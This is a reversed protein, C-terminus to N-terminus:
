NALLEDLNEHAAAFGEKFGLEVIKAMDAESAFSITIKVMTGQGTSEFRFDWHMRPFEENIKGNEDCFADIGTYSESPVIKEYDARCYMESGDPGVMAYLWTGGEAFNMSKTKAKYPKPAWWQDLINSDTWAAWVKEIPANFSREIHMQRNSPDM